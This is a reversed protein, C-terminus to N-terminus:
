SKKKLIKPSEKKFVDYDRLQNEEAFKVAEEYSQFYQIRGNPTTNLAVDKITVDYVIIYLAM